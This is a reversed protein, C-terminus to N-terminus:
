IITDSTKRMILCERRNIPGLSLNTDKAYSKFRSIAIKRNYDFLRDELVEIKEEYYDKDAKYPDFAYVYNKDIGTLLIYHEVDLLTRLVICSGIELAKRITSFNVSESRYYECELPFDNKRSYIMFWKYLMKMADISTGGQGINGKKDYCDLTYTSVAKMFIAPIEEREFLYSIANQVSTPGCDFETMQYRLPIKM